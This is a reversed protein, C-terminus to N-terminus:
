DITPKIAPDLDSPEFHQRGFLEERAAIVAVQSRQGLNYWSVPALGLSAVRLLNSAFADRVMMLLPREAPVSLSQGVQAMRDGIPGLFWRVIEAYKLDRM